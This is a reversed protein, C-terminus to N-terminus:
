WYSGVGAISVKPPPLGWPNTPSVFQAQGGAGIAATPMALISAKMASPLTKAPGAAPKKYHRYLLFAGVAAGGILLIKTTPSM